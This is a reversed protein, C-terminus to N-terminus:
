RDKTLALLFIIMKIALVETILANVAILLNVVVLRHNKHLVRFAERGYRKSLKSLTVYSFVLWSDSSSCCHYRSNSEELGYREGLVM